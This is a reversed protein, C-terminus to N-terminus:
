IYNANKSAGKVSFGELIVDSVSEKDIRMQDTLVM